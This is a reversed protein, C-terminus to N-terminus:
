GNISHGIEAYADLLPMVTDAAASPLGFIVRNFGMEILEEVRSQDPGLGFISFDPQGERGAASWAERTAAIGAAYDIGGQAAARTADQHIPFWGDGYEAIRDYTWKSSAGLLIKPGGAQAPKPYAWLRDFDVHEGHFEAEEETWIARMALIRERLVRWRKTFDVGHNAMEEVNWGAGVGLLVRGGSLFDLSAVQKAMLIPDRETVLTIGTGLKLNTTVTAAGALAVFPDLSHWYQRPLEAGGPWPTERSAPIHTHEPLFLSEFGRAEAAKALVDTAIAYDAPFILVGFDTM